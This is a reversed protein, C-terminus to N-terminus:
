TNILFERSEVARDCRRTFRVPSLHLYCFMRIAHDTSVNVCSCGLGLEKPVNSYYEQAESDDQGAGRVDCSLLRDPRAGGHRRRNIVAGATRQFQANREFRIDAAGDGTNTEVLARGIGPAMHAAEPVM